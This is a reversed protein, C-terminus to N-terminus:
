KIVALSASYLMKYHECIFVSASDLGLSWSVLLCSVQPSLFYIQYKRQIKEVGSKKVSNTTVTAGHIRNPM